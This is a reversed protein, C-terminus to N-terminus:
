QKFGYSYKKLINKDQDLVLKIRCADDFQYYTTINKANTESTKGILQKYTCTSMQSEVPHLRLEDIFASGTNINIANPNTLTVEYYKWATTNAAININTVNTGTISITATGKYWFSMKYVGATLTINQSVIGSYVYDGTKCDANLTMNANNYTWNGENLNEFSTHAVQDKTANIIKAIPMTNGTPFFVLTGDPNKSQYSNNYGWITTTPIDGEKRSQILNKDNDYFEYKMKRKYRTDQSFTGLGGLWNNNNITGLPKNSMKFSAQTIPTATEIAHSETPLGTSVDFKSLSGSLIFNGSWSTVFPVGSIYTTRTNGVKKYTVVEIPQNMIGKNWLTQLMDGTSAKTYETPYTLVTVSSENTALNNEVISRVQLNRPSYYYLKEISLGRMVSGGPTTAEYSTSVSRKLTIDRNNYKTFEFEVDQYPPNSPFEALFISNRKNGILGITYPPKDYPLTFSYENTTQTTLKTGITEKKSLLLGRAFDMNITYGTQADDLNMPWAPILDPYKDNLFPNCNSRNFTPSYDITGFSSDPMADYNLFRYETNGLNGNNETVYSYGVYENISYGVSVSKDSTFLTYKDIDNWCGSSFTNRLLNFSKEMSRTRKALGSTQGTGPITYTYSKQSITKNTQSDSNRISNIRLGGYVYETTSYPSIKYINSEFNFETRAGTPYKISQLINAQMRFPDSDRNAYMYGSRIMLGTSNTNYYGWFDQNPSFYNPLNITTNYVLEYPPSVATKGTANYEQIKDLRLRKNYQVGTKGGVYMGLDTSQFYSYSLKITKIRQYAKNYVVIEALPPDTSNMDLRAVPNNSADTQPNLRVIGSATYIEKLRKPAITKVITTTTKLDTFDTAVNFFKTLFPYTQCNQTPTAAPCTIRESSNYVNQTHTTKFQIFDLNSRYRFNIKEGFADEIEEIYWSTIYQKATADASVENKTWTEERSSATLGFKYKTGNGDILIITNMGNTGGYADLELNQNPFFIVPGNVAPVFKGSLGGINFYYMDPESDYVGDAINQMLNKVLPDNVINPNTKATEYFNSIQEGIEPTGKYGNVSEDPLGRVVRTIVGGANLSWGLGTWSAIDQVKNGGAHYSLSIAASLNKGPLNYLPINIAPVGTFLNVPIESYRAIGAANPSQAHAIGIFHLLIISNIIKKTM